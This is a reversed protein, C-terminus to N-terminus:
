FPTCLTKLITKIYQASGYQNKMKLYRFKAVLKLRNDYMKNMILGYLIVLAKFM